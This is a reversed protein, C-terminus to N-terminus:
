ALARSRAVHKPADPHSDILGFQEGSTRLSPKDLARIGSRRPHDSSEDVEKRYVFAWRRVDFSRIGDDVLCEGVPPSPEDQRVWDVSKRQSFATGTLQTGGLRVFLTPCHLRLLM